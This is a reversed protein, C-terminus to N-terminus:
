RPGGTGGKEPVEQAEPGRPCPWVVHDLAEAGRIIRKCQPLLPSPIPDSLCIFCFGKRGRGPSLSGAAVSLVSPPFFDKM